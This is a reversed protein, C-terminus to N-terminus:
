PGTRMLRFGISSSLVAPSDNSSAGSRLMGSNDRWNGGRFFRRSSDNSSSVWESVNGELDHFAQGDIIRPDKTGVAHTESGSNNISWSHKNLDSNTDIDFWEGNAKGLNRMVYEWQEARPLDYIHGKTHGPIIENLEAQIKVDGTKSLFNINRLLKVIDDYSVQEVPHDPQMQLKHGAIEILISAAKDKFHSPTILRIDKQGALIQLRAYQLQTMQTQQLEFEKAIVKRTKSGKIGMMFEGPKIKFMKGFTYHKSPDFIRVILDKLKDKEEKTRNLRDIEAIAKDVEFIDTINKLNVENKSLVLLGLNFELKNKLRIEELSASEKKENILALLQNLEYRTNKNFQEIKENPAKYTFETFFSVKEKFDAKLLFVNLIEDLVQAKKGISNVNELYMDKTNAVLQQITEKGLLQKVDENNLISKFLKQFKELDKDEKSTLLQSL